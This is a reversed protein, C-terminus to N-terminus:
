KEYLQNTKLALYRNVAAATSGMSILLGVVLMIVALGAWLSWPLTDQLEVLYEKAALYSLALLVSGLAAGMAGLRAGQALFPRHIFGRTAGVLQMTKISFRRAYIALRISSNILAVSILLLGLIVALMITMIRDVNQHIASLLDEAYMIDDVIRERQLREKLLALQEQNVYDAHLKLEIADSLPNVGLIDDIFDQGLENAFQAAAEEKSVFAISRVEPAQGWKSQLDNIHDQSASTSLFLTLTFNEKLDQTLTRAQYLLTGTLGLLFLVMGISITVSLYSARVRRRNFKDEGQSKAMGLDVYFLPM